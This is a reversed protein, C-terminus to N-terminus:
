KLEQLKDRIFQLQVVVLTAVFIHEFCWNIFFIVIALV